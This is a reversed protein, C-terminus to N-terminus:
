SKTNKITNFEETLEECAQVCITELQLVMEPIGDLQLQNNAYDQVHKAMNEYDVSIGM